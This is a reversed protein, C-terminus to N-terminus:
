FMSDPRIDARALIEANQKLILLFGARQRPELSSNPQLLDLALHEDRSCRRSGCRKGIELLWPALSRNDSWQRHLLMSRSPHPSLGLGLSASTSWRKHSSPDTVCYETRAPCVPAIASTWHPPHSSHDYSGLGGHLGSM